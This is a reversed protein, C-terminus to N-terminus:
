MSDDNLGLREKVIAMDLAIKRGVCDHEKFEKSLEKLHQDHLVWDPEKFICTKNIKPGILIKCLEWLAFICLQLVFIANIDNISM